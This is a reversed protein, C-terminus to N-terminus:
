LSASSHLLTANKDSFLSVETPEEVRETGFEVRFGVDFALEDFADGHGAMALRM